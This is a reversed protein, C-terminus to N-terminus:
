GEVIRDELKLAVIQAYSLEWLKQKPRWIGGARKVQERLDLENVGIQIGVRESPNRSSSPLLPGAVSNWPTEEVIIEVTKYRKGTEQDYRYRVCVLKDGYEKVLKKTGNQGPKLRLRVNM